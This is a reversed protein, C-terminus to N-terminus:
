RIVLERVKDGREILVHAGNETADEIFDTLMIAQRLAESMSGGKRDAIRQLAGYTHAAFNVHVRKTDAAKTTRDRKRSGNVKPKEQQTLPMFIQTEWPSVATSRSVARKFVCGRPEDPRDYRMKHATYM